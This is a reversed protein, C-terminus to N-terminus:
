GKDSSDVSRNVWTDRDRKEVLIDTDEVSTNFGRFNDSQLDVWRDVVQVM